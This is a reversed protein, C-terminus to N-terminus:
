LDWALIPRLNYPEVCYCMVTFSSEFNGTTPEGQQSCYFVCQSALIIYGLLTYLSLRVKGDKEHLSDVSSTTETAALASKLRIGTLGCSSTGQQLKAANLLNTLRILNSRM